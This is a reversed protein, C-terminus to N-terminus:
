WNLICDKHFAHSCNLNPSWAVEDGVKFDLLCIDCSPGPDREDDANPSSIPRNKTEDVDSSSSSGGDIVIYIDSDDDNNGENGTEEAISGDDGGGRLTPNADNHASIDHDTVDGLPISRATNNSDSSNQGQESRSDRGISTANAERLNSSLEIEPTGANDNNNNSGNVNVNGNVNDNVNGDVGDADGSPVERTEKELGTKEDGNESGCEAIPANSLPASFYLSKHDTRIQISFEHKRIHIKNILSKDNKKKKLKCGSELMSISTRHDIIVASGNDVDGDGHRSNRPSAQSASPQITEVSLLRRVILLDESRPFYTTARHNSENDGYLNRLLESLTLPESKVCNYVCILIGMFLLSLLIGVILVVILSVIFVAVRGPYTIEYFHRYCDSCLESIRSPPEPPLGGDISDAMSDAMSDAAPFYRTRTVRSSGGNGDADADANTTADAEGTDGTDGIPAPTTGPFSYITPEAPNPEEPVPPALIDSSSPRAQEQSPPGPAEGPPANEEESMTEIRIREETHKPFLYNSRFASSSDFHSALVLGTATLNV